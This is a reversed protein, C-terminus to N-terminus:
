ARMAGESSVLLLALSERGWGCPSSPISHAPGMGGWLAGFFWFILHFGFFAIFMGTGDSRWKESWPWGALLLITIVPFLGWLVIAPASRWGGHVHLRIFTGGWRGLLLAMGLAFMFAATILLSQATENM